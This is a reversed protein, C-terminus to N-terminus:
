LAERWGPYIPVPSNNPFRLLNRPLLTRHSTLTVM